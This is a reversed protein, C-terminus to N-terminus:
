KTEIGYIFKHRFFFMHPSHMAISMVETHPHYVAKFPNDFSGFSIANGGMYVCSMNFFGEDYVEERILLHSYTPSEILLKKVDSIRLVKLFINIDPTSGEGTLIVVTKQYLSDMAHIVDQEDIEAISKYPGLVVYDQMGESIVKLGEPACSILSPVDKSRFLKHDLPIDKADTSVVINMPIKALGSDVRASELDDDLCYGVYDEEITISKAGLILADCSSRLVSLWWFDTLSGDGAFHNRGAVEFAGPFDQYALKGDVTTVFSGYIYPRDEPINPFALETGYVDDVKSSQIGVTKYDDLKPNKYINTLKMKNADFDIKRFEM